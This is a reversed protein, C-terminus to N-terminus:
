PTVWEVLRDLSEVAAAEAEAKSSSLGCDSAHNRRNRKASAEWEWLGTPLYNVTYSKRIKMRQNRENNIQHSERRPRQPSLRGRPARPSHLRGGPPPIPHGARRATSPTRADVP